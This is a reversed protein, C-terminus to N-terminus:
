SDGPVSLCRSMRKGATKSASSVADPVGAASSHRSQICQVHSVSAPHLVATRGALLCSSPPMTHGYLCVLAKATPQLVIVAGLTHGRKLPPKADACPGPWIGRCCLGVRRAPRHFLLPRTLQTKGFVQQRKRTYLKKGEKKEEEKCVRTRGVYQEEYLRESCEGQGYAKGQQSLWRMNTWSLEAM